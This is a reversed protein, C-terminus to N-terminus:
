FIVTSLDLSITLWSSSYKLPLDPMLEIVRGYNKSSDSM